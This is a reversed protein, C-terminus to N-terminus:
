GELRGRRTVLRYVTRKGFVSRDVEGRFGDFVIKHPPHDSIQKVFM